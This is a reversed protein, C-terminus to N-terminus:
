DEDFWGPKVERQAWTPPKPNDGLAKMMANHYPCFFSCSESGADDCLQGSEFTWGCDFESEEDDLEDYDFDDM